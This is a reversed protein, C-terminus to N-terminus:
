MRKIDKVIKEKKSGEHPCSFTFGVSLKYTAGVTNGVSSVDITLGTVGAALSCFEAGKSKQSPPNIVSIGHRKGQKM